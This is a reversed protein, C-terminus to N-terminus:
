GNKKGKKIEEFTEILENINNLLNVFTDEEQSGTLTKKLLNDINEIKELILQKEQIKTKDLAEKVREAPIYRFESLSSGIWELVLLQLKTIETEKGIDFQYISSEVSNIAERSKIIEKSLTLFINGFERIREEMSIVNDKVIDLIGAQEKVLSSITETSSFLKEIMAKIEDFAKKSLDIDKKVKIAEDAKLELEKALKNIDKSVTDIIKKIEDTSKATRTALSGVEEAVVSFGKGYQGARAAEISANLALLNTQEAISKITEVVEKVKESNQLFRNMEKQLEIVDNALNEVNDLSNEIIKDGEEAKKNITKVSSHINNLEINVNNVSQTLLESSLSLELSSNKLLKNKEKTHLLETITKVSHTSVNSTLETLKKLVDKIWLVFSDFEKALIGLEDNKNMNLKQNLDGEQIKKMTLIMRNIPIVINRYTLYGGIGIILLSFVPIIVVLISAKELIQEAEKRLRKEESYFKAYEDQNAKILAIKEQTQLNEIRNKYTQYETILHHVYETLVFIMLVEIVVSLILKTKLKM